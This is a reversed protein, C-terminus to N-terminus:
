ALRKGGGSNTSCIPEFAPCSITAVSRLNTRSCRLLSWGRPLVSVTGAAFRLHRGMTFLEKPGEAIVSVSLRTLAADAVRERKHTLTFLALAGRPEAISVAPRNDRAALWRPRDLIHQTEEGSETESM